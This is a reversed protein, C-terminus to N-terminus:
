EINSSESATVSHTSLAMIFASIMTVAFVAAPYILFVELPAIDYKVGYVAGMMKFVPGISLNAAPILLAISIVVSIITTIAFRLTHWLVISKNKFGVAKLIAIESREKAIFSREMLITVLIIIIMTVCLVLIRVNDLVDSVGIISDIYEGVNSVNGDSYLERIKDIRNNLEAKDCNDTFSIQFPFFGMSQLYNIKLSEHLRIGEGYNNMDQYYGTIIFDTDKNDIKIQITDGIHANLKDAIVKTVAVEHENQPATGEAYDYEDCTTGIGQTTQSKCTKDGHTATLKFMVENICRAPMGEDALTQEIEEIKDKIMQDGNEVMYDMQMSQNSYCVDCETVGFLTILKDSKLTDVTIVLILVLLLCLSFTVIIIAYRKPASLVDNLSMFFENKLRSKSLSMIGKKGFREGTTGSRIADVPTYKKVKGTCGYCFLLIILVVAASCIINVLLGNESKMVMSQSVSSLLMNGFPIGAAFGIVAGIVSLTLYKIMYLSRISINRVGIAKMVGIERYEEALTFTITFKLMVFAILILCVSVVLLVGAVIMNMVYSMKLMQVSGMFVISNGYDSMAKEVADTDGTSIYYLKGSYMLVSDNNDTYEAYDKENVIFRTMGMMDSGLAADKFNGAIDFTKSVGSISITVQDGEHLDNIKMFRGSVLVKGEPVRKILENNEDYYNLKISDNSQLLSTNEAGKAIKGDCSLNQQNLYIIDERKYSGVADTNDLIEDVPQSGAINRIAVFYDSVGAMEFYSDLANSVTLINNVSSSVFMSALVIFILLIANMTKKRKMDKKLIRLFM